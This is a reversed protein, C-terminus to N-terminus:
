GATAAALPIESNAAPAALCTVQNERSALEETLRALVFQTTLSSDDWRRMTRSAALVAGDSGSWSWLGENSTWGFLHYMLCGKPRGSALRDVFLGKIVCDAAFADRLKGLQETSAASFVADLDARPCSERVGELADIQEKSVSGLLCLETLRRRLETRFM